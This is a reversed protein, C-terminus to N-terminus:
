LVIWYRRKLPGDKTPEVNELWGGHKEIIKRSGINGEDCTILVRTLGLRRAEELAMALIRSGYGKNREDSRIYYGIHGGIRRLFDNLEHRISVQGIFQGGRLLFLTSAPVWDAPLRGGTKWCRLKEVVEVYPQDRYEALWRNDDGEARVAELFEWFAAEYEPGLEVLRM